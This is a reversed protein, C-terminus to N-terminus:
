ILLIRTASLPPLKPPPSDFVPLDPVPPSTELWALETLVPESVSCGDVAAGVKATPLPTQIRRDCCPDDATIGAESPARDQCATSSMEEGTWRCFLRARAVPPALLLGVILGVALPVRWFM